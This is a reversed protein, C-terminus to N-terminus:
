NTFFQLVWFGVSAGVGTLVAGWLMDVFGLGVPWSTFTAINTLDYLSYAVFGFFAGRMLAEVLSNSPLVVFYMVGAAYIAYLLGAAWLTFHQALYPALGKQYFDKMVVGIWVFDVIALTVLAALYAFILPM